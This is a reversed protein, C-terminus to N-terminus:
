LGRKARAKACQEAAREMIRAFDGWVKGAENDQWASSLEAASENFMNAIRSLMVEVEEPAACNALDTSKREFTM